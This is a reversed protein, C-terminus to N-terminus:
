LTPNWLLFFFFVHKRWLEGWVMCNEHEYLPMLVGRQHGLLISKKGSIYIYLLCYMVDPQHASSPKRWDRRGGGPQWLECPPPGSELGESVEPLTDELSMFKGRVSVACLVWGSPKHYPAQFELCGAWTQLVWCSLPRGVLAYLKFNVAWSSSTLGAFFLSAFFARLWNKQDSLLGHCLRSFSHTSDAPYKFSILEGFRPATIGPSLPISPIADLIEGMGLFGCSHQM